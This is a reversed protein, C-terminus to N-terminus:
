VIATAPGVLMEVGAGAFNALDAATAKGHEGAMAAGFAAEDDWTLVAVLYYPPRGAPGAAPRTVTYSRLGPLRAALPAHTGDYHKDFAETSEPHNYLVILQFAM